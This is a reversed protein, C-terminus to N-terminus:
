RPMLAPVMRRMAERLDDASRAFCLRLFGEGGPGFATGPALGVNAEDVLRMALLRADPEAPVRPFAYFAGPPYPLQVGPVSRLADCVIARGERAQAIQAAVLAEGERLATVAAHQLFTAVGSTGYLILGEVAPALAAPGELWGIRWGTMAWNKSFTQVFLVRDRDGPQWVDRISPARGLAAHDPDFSFRGYIEDAIIWLRHRRAIALLAELDSRTATWGTPNAPSNVVIARTRPTVAAAIRAIDLSWGAEPEFQMPVPVARAGLAAIAGFFNSWTPSPIVIEDGPEAAVRIATHFAHMGGVTVFFRGPDAEDGYLGTVYAALAERLPAIGLMRTYFTAGDRIAREAAAGIFDPTPRDGEGVWLPILGPRHVGYAVLEGIGSPLVGAAEASVPPMTDPLLTATM